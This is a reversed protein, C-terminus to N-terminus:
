AHSAECDTATVLYRHVLQGEGNTNRKGLLVYVIMEKPWPHHLVNMVANECASMPNFAKVQIGRDEWLDAPLTPPESYLVLVTYTQAKM